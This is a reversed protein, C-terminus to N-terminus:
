KTDDDAREEVDDLVRCMAKTLGDPDFGLSLYAWTTEVGNDTGYMIFMETPDVEGSRISDLVFQLALVCQQRTSASIWKSQRHEPFRIVQAM